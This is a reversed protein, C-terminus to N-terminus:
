QNEEVYTRINNVQQAWGNSNMRFALDRRWEPVQQFGCETVQLHTGTETATLHFEVVTPTESSYDVAPDHAYPLWTFSFMHEPEIRQVTITMRVHEYGPHTIQGYAPQGAVFPAEMNVLFWAGFQRYDTIAQWVRSVPAAIDIEKQICDDTM